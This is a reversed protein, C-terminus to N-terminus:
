LRALTKFALECEGGAGLIDSFLQVSNAKSEEGLDDRYFVDQGCAILDQIVRECRFYSLAVWDIVAKGYGEFFPSNEQELGVFLFDREKPALMVEDWDIVFVQGTNTRILNGPHLDAHCLVSQVSGGQLIASLKELAANVKHITAQNSKWYSRLSSEYLSRDNSNLQQSEFDAVWRLYKTPDFTEKRVAEFGYTPLAVQHIKKFIAGTEWWHQATMGSWSTDGEIFPYLIITWEEIQSWLTDNRTPIPAVVSTHGKSNLYRSVLCSPSYFYGQRIKLLYSVEQESVIRYVRAMSDLGASIAELTLPSLAYQEQLFARLQEASLGHPETM